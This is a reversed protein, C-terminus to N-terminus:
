FDKSSLNSQTKLWVPTDVQALQFEFSTCALICNCLAWPSMMNICIQSFYLHFSFMNSEFKFM